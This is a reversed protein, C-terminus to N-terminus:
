TWAGLTITLVNAGPPLPDFKSPVEPQCPPAPPVPGANEDYAFGYAQGMTTGRACTTSGPAQIFVPIEDKGARVTATHMFLSFLNQTTRSPYWNTQTGWYKSSYGSEESNTAANAVGRNLASVLQNQLNLVITAENIEYSGSYAFVGANAFVMAGSTMFMGPIKSFGYQSLPPKGTETGSIVVGTINNSADRTVSKVTTTKPDVGAGSVYMGTLIKTGSPLVTDFTLTTDDLRGCIATETGKNDFTLTCLGLPSFVNLKLGSKKGKFQLAPHCLKSGTPLPQEEISNVTYVDADIGGSAVGQISLKRNLFLTKLDSDFLRNLPSELNSLQNSETTQTLYIGPNLLGGSNTSYQLDLFPASEPGIGNMFTKYTVFITNRNFETNASLPQGVAGRSDNLTLNLPFTLGDVTQLDIVAGYSLDVITFEVFSYPPFDSNPPNKVNIVKAGSDTYCVKPADPFKTNDAVFFYIRAGDIQRSSNLPSTVDISIQSIEASLKYVPLTGSVNPVSVFEAITTGTKVSLMKKSATSFGLIYITYRKEDLGTQNYLPISIAATATTTSEMM